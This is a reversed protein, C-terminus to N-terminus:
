SRVRTGIPVAMEIETGGGPRSRVALKAGIREARERLGLLGFHGESPGPAREPDFGQGEDRVILTVQEPGYELRIEIRSEKAHKIANTIAEQGIHFLEDKVDPALHTPEGEIRVDCTVPTGDSLRHAFRSLAAGLDGGDTAQGRLKWVVRRAKDLSESILDRSRDIRKRVADADAPLQERAADLQMSVATLAQLLTDHLERAVRNREAFVALYPARLQRLRIRYLAFALGIAALTCAGYFWFTQYIHPALVLDFTAGAENWIGDNNSAQVRFRYKGPLVNTYFATRRSGADIWGEDFGELRYRQRVKHPQVFSLTAYHFELMGHGPPLKAAAAPSMPVGDAIVNEIVVSPVVRNTRVRAPEVTVVGHETAFFLRGDRGQWAADSPGRVVIGERRDSTDFSLVEPGARTPGAELSRKSLRFVGNPSGFWFHDPGDGFMHSVNRPGNPFRDERKGLSRSLEFGASWLAGSDDQHLARIRDGGPGVKTMRGDAYLFLGKIANVWVNGTADEYLLKVDHGTYGDEAGFYRRGTGESVSLSDRGGIWLRNWHDVMLTRTVGSYHPQRTFVGDRFLDVGGDSGVWVGGGRAPHVANVRDHTLGDRTTYIRTQGDKWRALGKDLLGMWLAGEDDDCLSLIIPRSPGLDVPVAALTRDTFQVVGGLRTGVWLSGERDEFLATVWEDPLGHAKTFTTFRGDRFRMLGAPTGLWLNGDRDELMETVPPTDMPFVVDDGGGIRLLGRNTAAWIRGARDRRVVTVPDAVVKGNALYPAFLEGTSVFLGAKTGVFIRGAPDLALSQTDGVLGQTSRKVFKGQVFKFLTKETMMWPDGGADMHLARVRSGPPRALPVSANPGNPPVQVLTLFQPAVWLTGDRLAMLAGINRVGGAVESTTFSAGNFRTLGAVTSVWLYGDSTQAISKIWDAPLGDSSRWVKVTCQELGKRPDLANAVCPAFLIAAAVFV